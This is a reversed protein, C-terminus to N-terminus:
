GGHWRGCSFLGPAVVHHALQLTMRAAAIVLAPRASWQLCDGSARSARARAHTRAAM